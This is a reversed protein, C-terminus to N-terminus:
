AAGTQSGNQAPNTFWKRPMNRLLKRAPSPAASSSNMQQDFMIPDEDM